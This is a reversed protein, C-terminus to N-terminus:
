ESCSPRDGNWLWSLTDGSLGERNVVAHQFEHAVIIPLKRVNWQIRNLRDFTSSAASRSDHGCARPDGSTDAHEERREEGREVALGVLVDLAGAPTGKLDQHEDAWWNESSEDSPVNAPDVPLPDCWLLL